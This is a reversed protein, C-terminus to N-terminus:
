RDCTRPDLYTYMLDVVLTILAICAAILATAALVVPYDLKTVATVLLRGLGPWSFVTETIATGGVLTGLQIGTMTVLPLSANKLAHRYVVVRGTLGKARATRIYDERLVELMASRLLRTLVPTLFFALTVAPLVLHRWSGYGSVPLWHLHVSFVLMLMIGVWFTPLSRGVMAVTTVTRDALTQRRVAALIGLPVAAVLTLLMSVGGLELTAPVRELVVQLAPRKQFFSEGFNGRISRVVFTYWQVILPRDLGLAQRVFEVDEYSADEPALLQAPDGSLHLLMFAVTLVGLLVVITRPVRRLAIRLM